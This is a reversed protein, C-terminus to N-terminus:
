DTASIERILEQDFNDKDVIDVLTLKDTDIDYFLNHIGIDGVNYGESRIRSLLENRKRWIHAWLKKDVKGKLEDLKIGKARPQLVYSGGFFCPLVEDFKISLENHLDCMERIWQYDANHDRPIKIVYDDYILVISRTGSQDVKFTQM